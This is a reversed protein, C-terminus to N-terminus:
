LTKLFEILAQREEPSLRRGIVGEKKPGDNFEHGTNYNGRKTTDFAFAGALEDSRYGVKVPDYERNGLYFQKPREAVPSLLADLNPVSGNHLYPPTAWIGSLPRAMYKLPAQIGNPRYGNMEDRKADPVPPTQHDYWYSTTKAVLEGLATGFDTAKIGLSAPTSVKRNAMDVAQAPDTGVEKIDILEVHLYRQGTPNPPLWYKSNWFAENGIKDPAQHCHQCLSAYLDAGKAALEPKIPPLIDAPWPPSKLGTFGDKANPQQGALMKEMAFLNTVHVSSAFSGNKTNSWAAVGMSEGANRVMPQEISGNYQVWDFWPASWIHPFHVPATTGAYNDAIGLDIGFVQNGIRNLADLRGFGEDVNSDAVKKDLNRVINLQKWVADLEKRLEAKADDGADEGLVNKAFRDFRGSLYNTFMISIGLGQRFNGLNTLAPGGDILVTTRQYTLRGTHCAACTLGIATLPQKNSGPYYWPDGNPRRMIGGRAFGIPLQNEGGKTAGPIFGYRDLYAPDSLRGVDGVLSIRPQELAVFWEYPIGFTQTGQDAHHFWERQEETWGQDLWVAKKIPPYDPLVVVMKDRYITFVVVAVVIIVVAAAGIATMVKHEIIHKTIM